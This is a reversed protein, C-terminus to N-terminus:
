RAHRRRALWYAPIGALLVATGIAAEDPNRQVLFASGTLTFGIFVAPVWPHGPIPVRDAGERQRLWAAVGVTGAASIGLTFGLTAILEGLDSVFVIAIALAAQFAIARSPAAGGQALGSPLMGDRALQALVRPGSLVMVSISTLLALCIIGAVAREAAPGGLLGAAAAGIDARGALAEVSGSALFLANTALYLLAVGLTPLWLARQLNRDPERIEGALYIAGNWGSYSFSIWVLTVAFAGVDISVPTPAPIEPSVSAGWVLFGLLLAAKLVVLGTLSATGLRPRLGHLLAAAFIVLAGTLGGPIGRALATALYAELALAAAAIPGAFGAFVSVWGAMFGLVPHVTRSLYTAEGGSVPIRRAIGGYSLAGCLAVVGGVLWALLVWRPEGLDALAFGSTTFLGAGIMNAVVLASAAGLGLRRREWDSAGAGPPGRNVDVIDDHRLIDTCM